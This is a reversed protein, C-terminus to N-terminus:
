NVSLAFGAGTRAAHVGVREVVARSTIRKFRLGVAVGRPDSPRYDHVDGDIVPLTHGGITVTAPLTRGQFPVAINIGRAIADAVHEVNRPDYSYTRQYNGPMRDVWHRAPVKTYDYFSVRPFAGMINAHEGARIRVRYRARIWAALGPDVTVPIREWLIDSTANLRVAPRMGAERAAAAHRAIESVLLVMFSGRDRAYLRTRNIRARSKGTQYAPNGAGDLCLARCAGAFPCTNLFGSTDSPALHMPLTLMRRIKASKATKPQALPETCLSHVGLAKAVARAAILSPSARM